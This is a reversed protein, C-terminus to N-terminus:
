FTLWQKERNLFRKYYALVSELNFKNPAYLLESFVNLIFIIYFNKFTTNNAKEDDYKEGDKLSSLSVPTIKATFGLSKHAKWLEKPKGINERM